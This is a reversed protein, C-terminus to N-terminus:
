KKLTVQCVDDGAQHDGIAREIKEVRDTLTFIVPTITSKGLERIKDCDMKIIPDGAKVQDGVKAITEFGEGQLEVTDLGLHVLVEFDDAMQMGFAHGTPFIMSVKGDVPAVVTVVGNGPQVAFGDGVMRQSFVADPVEDLDSVYGGLPSLVHLRTDKKKFLNFM